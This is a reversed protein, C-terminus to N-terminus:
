LDLYIDLNGKLNRPGPILLAIFMFQRKKCLWPPLNYPTVIVPWCSYTQGYHGFPSFGDTCLGLRVNRPEKAFSPFSADLHKWADSDSPHAMVGAPRSHEHHWRMHPAISKTAYLRQLRPGIPFYILQKRPIKRGEKSVRSYRGENCVSCAELTENDMWFLMCGNPCVDIKTHPLELGALLKKIEYYNKAMDNTDPCIEKMFTALADVARHPLNYECKLNTLCAVAKLLSMECGEYLPREAAQLLQMFRKAEAIPEKEENNMAEPQLSSMTAAFADVVMDRMPNEMVQITPSSTGAGEDELFPEGHHVWRYYHAVFGRQYLHLKVTDVDRYPKNRCKTCPCKLKQCRQFEQQACAFTIFENVKAIFVKSLYKGDVRNYMWARNADM